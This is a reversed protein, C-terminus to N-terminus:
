STEKEKQKSKKLPSELASDPSATHDARPSISQQAPPRPFGSTTEGGTLTRLTDGAARKLDLMHSQWAEATPFLSGLGARAQGGKAAADVHLGSESTPPLVPNGARESEEQSNTRSNTFHRQHAAALQELMTQQPAPSEFGITDGIPGAKATSVGSDPLLITEPSQPVVAKEPQRPNQATELTDQGPGPHRLSNNTSTSTGSNKADGTLPSDELLAIFGVSFGERSGEVGSVPAPRILGPPPTEKPPASAIRGRAESERDVM